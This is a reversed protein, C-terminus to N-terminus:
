RMINLTSVEAADFLLMSNILKFTTFNVVDKEKIEDERIVKQDLLYQRQTGPLLCSSPTIWDNGTRFIINAYYTDTVFGNQIILIDDCGGRKEFALELNRRDKFKHHYVLTDGDIFKLSNVARALYPIFEVENKENDYTVRCRFLGQGPKQSGELLKSLDVNITIGWVERLARQMRQEHYHINNFRGDLLRITEILPFM